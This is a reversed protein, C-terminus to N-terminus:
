RILQIDFGTLAQWAKDATIISAGPLSRALALCCRDGLSLGLSRTSLRLEAARLATVLDLPVVDLAFHALEADVVAATMGRDMMKAAVESWNVTSIAGGPEALHRLAAESGPEAFVVALLASADYVKM